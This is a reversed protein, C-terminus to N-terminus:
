VKGKRKKFEEIWDATKEKPVVSVTVLGDVVEAKGSGLVKGLSMKKGVKILGGAVTEMYAEVNEVRYENKTDWPLPFIYDLHQDLKEKESFAKIFDSQSETPYLIIVPFTLTSSPDLANELKIAADELDPPTDTSRTLINRSKLALKLTARESAAKEERERRTKEVSAIYAIRSSIKTKLAKLPANSPDLTLGRDCADSAEALKDLALCATSSRYLAKVNAPNLRITQACDIICSRYNETTTLLSNYNTLTRQELAESHLVM